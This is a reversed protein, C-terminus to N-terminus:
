GQDDKLTPIKPKTNLKSNSYTWFLKPKTKCNTAISAEFNYRTIQDLVM